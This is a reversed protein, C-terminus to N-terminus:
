VVNSLKSKLPNKHHCAKMNLQEQNVFWKIYIKESRYVMTLLYICDCNWFVELPM